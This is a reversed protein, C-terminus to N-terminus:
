KGDEDEGAGLLEKALKGRAEDYSAKVREIKEELPALERRERDALQSSQKLFLRLNAREELSLHPWVAKLDDTLTDDDEPEAFVIRGGMKEIIELLLIGPPFVDSPRSEWNAFTPRAVGFIEAAQAQTLGQRTRWERLAAIFDAKTKMARAEM